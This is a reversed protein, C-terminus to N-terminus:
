RIASITVGLDNGGRTHLKMNAQSKRVIHKGLSNKQMGNSKFYPNRQTMPWKPKSVGMQTNLNSSLVIILQLVLSKNQLHTSYLLSSLVTEGLCTSCM